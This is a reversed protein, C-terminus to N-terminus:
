EGQEQQPKPDDFFGIYKKTFGGNIALKEEYLKDFDEKIGEVMTNIILQIDVLEELSGSTLFENMEEILKGRLLWNFLENNQAVAYNCVKGEKQIIEPINDRILKFM